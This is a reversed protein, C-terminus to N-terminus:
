WKCESLAISSLIHKGAKVVNDITTYTIRYTNETIESVDWALNEEITVNVEEEVEGM